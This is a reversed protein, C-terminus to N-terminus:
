LSVEYFENEISMKPANCQVNDSVQSLAMDGFAKLELTSNERPVEPDPNTDQLIVSSSNDSNNPETEIENLVYVSSLGSIKKSQILDQQFAL